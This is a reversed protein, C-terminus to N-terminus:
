ILGGPPSIAWTREAWKVVEEDPLEGITALERKRLLAELETWAMRVPITRQLPGWQGAEKLEAAREAAQDATLDGFRLREGKHDIGAERAEAARAAPAAPDPPESM